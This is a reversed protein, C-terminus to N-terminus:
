VSKFLRIPCPAYPTTSHQSTSEIMSRLNTAWTSAPKLVIHYPAFLILDSEERNCLVFFFYILYINIPCYRVNWYLLTSSYLWKVSHSKRQDTNPQRNIVSFIAISGFCFDSVLDISACMVFRKVFAFYVRSDHDTRYWFFWWFTYVVHLVPWM